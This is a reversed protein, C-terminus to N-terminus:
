REKGWSFIIIFEKKKKNRRQAPLKFMRKTTTTQSTQLKNKHTKNTPKTKYKTERRQRLKESTAWGLM